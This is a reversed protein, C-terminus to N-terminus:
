FRRIGNNNPSSKYRMEETIDEISDYNKILNNLRSRINNADINGEVDILHIATLFDEIFKAQKRSVNGKTQSSIFGTDELMTYIGWAYQNIQWNHPAGVKNTYNMLLEQKAERISAVGLFKHLYEKIEDRLWPVMSDVEVPKGKGFRIKITDTDRAEHLAIYLKLMEPRVGVAYQMYDDEAEEIAPEFGGKLSENYLLLFLLTDYLITDEEINYDKLFQELDDFNCENSIPMALVDSHEYSYRVIDVNGNERRYEDPIEINMLQNPTFSISLCKHIIDTNKDINFWQKLAPELEKFRDMPYTFQQAM